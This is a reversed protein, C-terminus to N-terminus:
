RHNSFSAPDVHVVVRGIAKYYQRCSIFENVTSAQLKVRFPVNQIAKAFACSAPDVSQQRFNLDQLFNRCADQGSGGEDATQRTIQSSPADLALCSRCSRALKDPM